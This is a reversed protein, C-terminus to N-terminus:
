TTEDLNSSIQALQEVVNPAGEFVGYGDSYAFTWQTEFKGPSFNHSLATLIYLNDLTTGTQFDIFYQQAMSALPCGKSTMTLQAPIVRLPIGLDGSGNPMATNRKAQSNLLNRTGVLPNAKSTVNISTITSGNAGFRITPVVKAIVDKIQQNTGFPTVQTINIRDAKVDEQFQASTAATIAQLTTAANQHFTKAYEDVNKNIHIFGRNDESRLLQSATKYPTTQKDYVHIRMIKQISKKQADQITITEADAASYSLQQLIDNDGSDSVKEHSMEIYMEIQPQRFAGYKSIYAAQQGEFQGEIDNGKKMEPDSGRKWPQYFQSFGYGIARPDTFQADIILAMFDELKVREGGKEKVMDAFQSMFDDVKIPFEAVCHNSVPGAQENLNYFFVQVEGFADPLSAIARLAFVSFMKGFSVVKKQKGGKNLSDCMQTVEDGLEKGATPLFPDPGTRVEEFMEGVTKTVTKDYREKFVFKSKDGDAQYLKQMSTVLGSLADKDIDKQSSLAKKLSAINKQIDDPKLNPFEGVEAADLIQYARIEKSLGNPTDLKLIRRYRSIMEALQKVDSLAFGMDGYHDTIKMERIETIGKTFLELSITVIGNQDFSFSSNKIHYPERVLMNDNVYDFYPNSGTRVPARWGYTLWITVGQYVNVRILDSIESLRSRDHLKLTMNAQKYCVFGAGSPKSTITVHELTLFPRFPDLVDTYRTGDSGISQNPTPNVLTQPATFMEMGAYDLESAASDNTSGLQHAEILAQTSTSVAAKKVGGLLFRMMGPSQISDSQDRKFQFEVQMLPVLQALVTNPMSNLFIEARKTNRTMPSFFPSRSMVISVKPPQVPGQPFQFNKGLVQKLSEVNSQEGNQDMALKANATKPGLDAFGSDTLITLYKTLDISGQLNGKAQLTKIKDIVNDISLVGRGSSELIRLLEVFANDVRTLPGGLSPQVTNVLDSPQFM